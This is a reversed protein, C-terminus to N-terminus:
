QLSEKGIEKPIKEFIRRSFDSFFGGSIERIIRNSNKVHNAAPIGDQMDKSIRFFGCFSEPIKELSKEQFEWLFQNFFELSKKKFKIKQNKSENSNTKM